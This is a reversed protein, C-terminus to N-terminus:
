MSPWRAPWDISISRSQASRGSSAARTLARAPAKWVMSLAKSIVAEFAAPPLSTGERSPKRMTSRM